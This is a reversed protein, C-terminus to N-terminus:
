LCFKNGFVWWKGACSGSRCEVDRTCLLGSAYGTTAIPFSDRAVLNQIRNRYGPSSDGDDTDIRHSRFLSLHDIPRFKDASNLGINAVGTTDDSLLFTYGFNFLSEDFKSFPWRDYQLDQWWLGVRTNAYRVWRAADLHTCESNMTPENGFSIVQPNWNSHVVAAIQAVSGGQSHGTFVLRDVVCNDRIDDELQSRYSTDYADWFGSRTLCCQEAGSAPCVEKRGLWFNQKFDFVNFFDTGRFSVFCYNNKTALIARDIDDVYLQLLDYGDRNEPEDFYALLSVDVAIETLQMYDRDLVPQGFVVMLWINAAVCFFRLENM